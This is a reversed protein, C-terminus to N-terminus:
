AFPPGRVGSAPSTAPSTFSPLLVIEYRGYLADFILAPYSTVCFFQQTGSNEFNELHDEGLDTEFFHLLLHSFSYRIDEHEQCTSKTELQAHDHASLNHGLIIILAIGLSINSLWKVVVFTCFKITKAIRTM